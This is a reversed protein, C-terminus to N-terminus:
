PFAKWDWASYEHALKKSLLVDVDTARKNM